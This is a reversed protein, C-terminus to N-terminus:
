FVKLVFPTVEPNKSGVDICLANGDMRVGGITHGVIQPFTTTLFERDFDCWLIGGTRHAGGRSQGVASFWEHNYNAKSWESDLKKFIEECSMPRPLLEATIGAHTVLIPESDGGVSHMYAIRLKGADKLAHLQEGVMENGKFGSFMNQPDFYPVEHNGLLMFDFVESVMDLCAIDGEVSSAVCNAMDGIQLLVEAKMTRKGSSDILGENRLARTLGEINGHVDSVIYTAM